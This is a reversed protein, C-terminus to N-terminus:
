ITPSVIQWDNSVQRIGGEALKTLGNLQWSYVAGNDNRWLIDSNGDGNNDGTGAIEWGTAIPVQGISGENAITFGNMLYGYVNGSNSNRWLIDSKGDNNFDDVGEIVWDNSVNRVTQESAVNFGNMQYIVVDGTISNRWLIDSKSDGNFDGTGAIKWDLNVTRISEESAITSGDMQDILVEGTTQNRWLIDSKSDGNFDGTGAIQWNLSITSVSGENTVTSGNMQYLYTEGNNSNRWLIDSKKDGNFDGTGAIKWDLSVTRVSGESAIDLGNMQYIYVNGTSTNRWLIDARQDDNFDNRVPKSTVYQFASSTLNLGTSNLIIGILEDPEGDPKDLLINTGTGVVQLLYNSAAGHLQIQDETPNFDAILAFGINIGNFIDLDDYYTKDRDGLIFRDGGSGGTLIDIESSGNVGNPNAGIIIDNGSDGYLNDNGDDGILLDNGDEGFLNDDGIGGNLSDEGKDGYIFDGGDNGDLSDNGENGFLYDNGAGGVLLDLGSGGYLYDNVSGGLFTDDGDNGYITNNYIAASADVFDNGNSGALVFAEINQIITGDIGFGGGISDLTIRATNGFYNLVLSDYGTGGNIQSGIGGIITDNGSGGNLTNGITQDDLYDNGDGGDLFDIGENGFITDNGDGGFIVDNGTDGSTYDNGANGNVVDNGYGGYLSDNGGGGVLLDDNDGGFLYDNENGGKLTDNGVYGSLNNAYNTASADISDDGGSGYISFSEINQIITGDSGSGGGIADLTINAVISQNRYDLVLTNIGAGGNVNSGVGAVITDDGVGGNLTNGIGFIDYLYDNGDDGNISDIGEDAVLYDNGIGGTVTDNGAGGILYDDGGLGSILDDGGLGDIFNDNVDGTLTDNGETPTDDMEVLLQQGDVVISGWDDEAKLEALLDASITGGGVLLRFIAGEDGPAEEKNVRSDISHGLEEVIVAGIARLDGAQVFSDRLYITNTAAAFAGVAVGMSADDLVRIPLMLSGDIAEQRVMEAQTRDYNNGFALEFGQWFLPESAFNSLAVSALQSAQQLNNRNM